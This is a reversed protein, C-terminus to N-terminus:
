LTGTDSSSSQSYLSQLIYETFNMNIHLGEPRNLFGLLRRYDCTENIKDIQAQYARENTLLDGGFTIREIIDHSDSVEHAPVFSHVYKAIDIMDAAKSENKDMLDLVMFESKVSMEKVYPHDIYKPVASRLSELFPLRNVLIEIVHFKFNQLLDDNEELSPLFMGNSTTLINHRPRAKDLSSDPIVRLPAIITL